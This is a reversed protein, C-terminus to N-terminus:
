WLDGASRGDGPHQFDNKWTLDERHELLQDLEAVSRVWGALAGADQWRRMEGVQAPTPREDDRKVEIALARGTPICGLVDPTGRRAMGTQHKVVSYGGLLAIRKVVEDKISTETRPRASRRRSPPLPRREADLGDVVTFTATSFPDSMRTRMMEMNQRLALSFCIAMRITRFGALLMFHSM